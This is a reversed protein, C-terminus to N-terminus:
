PSIAVVKPQTCPSPECFSFLADSIQRLENGVQKDAPLAKVFINDFQM